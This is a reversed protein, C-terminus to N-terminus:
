RPSPTPTPTPAVACRAIGEITVCVLGDACQDSTTCGSGASLKPTATPTPTPPGTQNQNQGQDMDIDFPSFECGAFLVIVSLVLIATGAIAFKTDREM